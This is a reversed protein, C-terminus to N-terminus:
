RLCASGSLRIDPYGNFEIEIDPNKLRKIFYPLTVSLSNAVMRAM